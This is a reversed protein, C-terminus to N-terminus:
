TRIEFYYFEDRLISPRREDYEYPRINRYIERKNRGSITRICVYSFRVTYSIRAFFIDSRFYSYVVKKRKDYATKNESNTRGVGAPYIARLV